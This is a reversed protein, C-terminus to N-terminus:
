VTEIIISRIMEQFMKSGTEIIEDPFDYTPNHLPATDLGSGLGFFATSYYKAYWGFDEGFKFPHPRNQITYDLSNAARSIYTNGETDKTCAPFYELWDLTFTLGHSKSKKAVEKEIIERLHKMHEPSWARITYHLEAEGPSIGYAPQGMQLHVPTLITFADDDLSPHNLTQLFQIIDSACLAPNIGKEPQSAHSELGHLHVVFSIVEASFGKDCVIIDHMPEQPINHLALVIDPDLAQFRPDNIVQEAGRGTEEAPQFLLTVTGKEFAQTELWPALSAVIAMHGDHGCMHSIGENKSSYVAQTKETIPLADLECRVVISKGDNGFRYVAAIGAEGINEIINSPNYEQIFEKIHNSTNYERGSVEADTHLKHRLHIYKAYTM